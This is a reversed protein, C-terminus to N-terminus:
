ANLVATADYRRWRAMSRSRDNCVRRAATLGSLERPILLWIGEDRVRM